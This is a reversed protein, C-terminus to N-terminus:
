KLHAADRENECFFQELIETDPVLQMPVKVSFPKTYYKPDEMTIELDMHGFDRRTFRERIRLAESRPHGLIDLWTKDNFGNSDVVWSGGDWRGVSYGFWSPQPDVPLSRGDLHIQRFNGDAESMVVMTRPTQVIKIPYALLMMLPVGPPLCVLTPADKGEAALRHQFLEAGEKTFPAQELPVDALINIAYKTFMDTSDGPVDNDTVNPGALKKWEEVPTPVPKWIGSLDTRGGLKPAPAGLNPRGDKLRPTAPDRYEIWQGSCTCAVAVLM